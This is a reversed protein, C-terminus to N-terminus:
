KEGIERNLIKIEVQNKKYEHIMRLYLFFRLINYPIFYINLILKLLPKSKYYEEDAKKTIEQNALYIDVSNKWEHCYTLRDRMKNKFYNKM